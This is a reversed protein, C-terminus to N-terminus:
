SAVFKSKMTTPILKLDEEERVRRGLVSIKMRRPLQPSIESSAQREAIM